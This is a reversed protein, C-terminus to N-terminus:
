GGIQVMHKEETIKRRDSFCHFHPKEYITKHLINMLNEDSVGARLDSLIDVSSNYCLCPKLHGNSTLRIRNCQECFKHSIADIFGIHGQLYQSSYYHAPGNGLKADIPHLDPWQKKLSYLAIDPNIGETLSGAGIPMLEIFRVDIPMKSAISAINSIEDQNIKLLVTNIKTKIGKTVCKEAVSLLYSTSINECNTLFNYKDDLLTDISINVADLGADVLKDLYRELLVGNTTMTVQKVKPLSKLSGILNVCNQRLLPEGGTIKFNTIGLKTALKAIRLIEDYSLLDNNPIYSIEPPTCYRCRLNCRDIISIRLYDITRGFQDIM